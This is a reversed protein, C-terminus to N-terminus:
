SGSVLGAVKLTSASFNADQIRFPAKGDSDTPTIIDFCAGSAMRGAGSGIGSRATAAVGRTLFAFAAFALAAFGAFFFVALVCLPTSFFAFARALFFVPPAALGFAAFALFDFFYSGPPSIVTFVSM